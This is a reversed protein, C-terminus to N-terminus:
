EGACGNKIRDWDSAEALTMYRGAHGGTEAALKKLRAIRQNMDPHTAIYQLVGPVANRDKMGDFFRILGSPDIGASIVMRMGERDAEDEDQRSYRLRALTHAAKAGYVAAGTVDGTIASIMLGTASDEIIRKTAHRKTIHQIEHAIVGALEEPSLTKEILGQYVIIYGGPLAVANVMPSKIVYVKFPYSKPQGATLISTIRDVAATLRRDTCRMSDPALVSLTSRGLGEEWELPIHPTILVALFPIGWFYVALGAAAEEVRQDAQM